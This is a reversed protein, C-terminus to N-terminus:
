RLLDVVASILHDIDFPKPIFAIPGGAPLPHLGARDYFASMILVPLGSIDPHKRISALVDWGTIRGLLVDLMVLHAGHGAVAAPTYPAAIRVPRFGAAGLVDAILDATAEQDEIIAIVAGNGPRSAEDVPRASM